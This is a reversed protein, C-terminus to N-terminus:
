LKLKNYLKTTNFERLMGHRRAALTYNPFQKKAKEAFQRLTLLNMALNEVVFVEKEDHDVEALIMGIINNNEDVSYYLSNDRVGDALM